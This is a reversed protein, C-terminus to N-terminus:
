LTYIIYDIVNELIVYEFFIIIIVIIKPSIQAYCKGLKPKAQDYINLQDTYTSFLKTKKKILAKIYLENLINNHLNIYDEHKTDKYGYEELM